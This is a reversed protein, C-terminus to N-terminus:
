TNRKGNRKPITTREYKRDNHLAGTRTEFKKINEVLKKNQDEMIKTQFYDVIIFAIISVIVIVSLGIVLYDLNNM